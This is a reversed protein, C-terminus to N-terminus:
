ACAKQSVCVCWTQWEPIWEKSSQDLAIVEVVNEPSKRFLDVCSVQWEQLFKKDWIYTHM